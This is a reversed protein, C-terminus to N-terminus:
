TGAHPRSHPRPKRQPHHRHPRTQSRLPLPIKRHPTPLPLRRLELRRLRTQITPYQRLAGQEPTEPFSPLCSAERCPRRRSAVAVIISPSSFVSHTSAKFAWPKSDNGSRRSPRVPSSTPPKNPRLSTTSSGPSERRSPFSNTSGNKWSQAFRAPQKSVLCACPRKSVGM